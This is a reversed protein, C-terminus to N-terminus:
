TTGDKNITVDKNLKIMKAYAQKVYSDATHDLYTKMPKNHHQQWADFRAQVEEPTNGPLKLLQNQEEQIKQFAEEIKKYAAALAATEQGSLEGDPGIVVKKTDDSIDVINYAPTTNLDQDKIDLKKLATGADVAMEVVKESLMDSAKAFVFYGIVGVAFVPAALSASGVAVTAATGVAVSGGATAKIADSLFGSVAELSKASTTAGWVKSWISRNKQEIEAIEKSFKREAGAIAKQMAEINLEKGKDQLSDLFELVTIEDLWEDSREVSAEKLTSSSRWSEMILKMDNKM